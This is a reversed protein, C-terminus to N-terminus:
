GFQHRLDGLRVADAHLCEVWAVGQLRKSVHQTWTHDPCTIVGPPCPDAAPIHPRARDSRAWHSPHQRHSIQFQPMGRPLAAGHDQSDDDTSLVFSPQGIPHNSYDCSFERYGAPVQQAGVVCKFYDDGQPRYDDRYNYSECLVLVQLDDQTSYPYTTCFEGGDYAPGCSGLAFPGM